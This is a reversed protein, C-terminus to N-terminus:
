SRTRCERYRSLALMNADTTQPPIGCEPCIMDYGIDAHRKASRIMDDPTGMMMGKVPNIGGFLRTRGGVARLVGEPDRDTEVVLGDAGLSALKGITPSTDGCCHLIGYSDKVGKLVAGTFPTVFTEFTDPHIFDANGETVICVGDSVESLRSAYGAICPTVAREWRLVADPDMITAMLLNEAGLVHSAVIMPAVCASVLFLDEGEKRIRECADLVVRRRGTSAFVEPEPMEPVDPIDMSRYPSGTVMAQRDATGMDVDCGFGEAEVTLCFPVRAMAFGFGRSAQMSLRAMAVPDSNAEPWSAGCARMQSTTATQTFVMPPPLDRNEGNMADVIEDRTNM